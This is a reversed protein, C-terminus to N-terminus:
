SFEVALEVPADVEASVVAVGDAFRWQVDVGALTAAAPTRTSAHIIISRRRRGAPDLRLRLTRSAPDWTEHTIDLAGMGVHATTAIVTPRDTARRLGLMRCAHPEVRAFTVRGSSRGAYREDWLEFV